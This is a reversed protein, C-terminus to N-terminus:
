IEDYNISIMTLFNCKIKTEAHNQKLSELSQNDSHSFFSDMGIFFLWSEM